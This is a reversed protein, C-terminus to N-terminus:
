FQFYIFPTPDYSPGYVGFLVICMVAAFLIAFRPLTKRNNLWTYINQKREAWDFTFLVLVALFAVVLDPTDLGLNLLSGNWLMEPNWSKFLGSLLGFMMATSTAGFMLEGFAFCAFTRLVRSLKVLFNETPVNFKLYLAKAPKEFTTELMVLLGHWMGYFIYQLGEGHWVGSVFWLIFLSIYAPLWKAAWAMKRKAFWRNLAALPKSFTVPYFIYDRLWAGLTIHWRRWFEGINKSFFPRQFNEPMEVGFLQGAGLAMDIGGSFDAYLQISYLVGALLVYFGFLENYGGYLTRTLVALRDAVVLKKFYGWLMRELATIFRNYDFRNPTLLTKALQDFRSIPGEIIQPFFTTFLAVKFFNEEPAVKKNYVDIIYGIIQLTYFSIGVPMLLTIAPLFAANRAAMGYFKFTLLIGATGAIYLFLLVRRQTLFKRKVAAREEKTFTEKGNALTQKEATHMRGIFVGFLWTTVCNLFLVAFMRRSFQWYFYLSFFLLVCWRYRLPCLYYFVVCVALFLTFQITTFLM